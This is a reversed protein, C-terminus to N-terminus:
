AQDDGEWGVWSGRGRDCGRGGEVSVGGCDGLDDRMERRTTVDEQPGLVVPVHVHLMYLPMLLPPLRHQCVILPHIQHTPSTPSEGANTITDILDWRRIHLSIQRSRQIRSMTLANVM